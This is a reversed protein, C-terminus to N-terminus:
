RASWSGVVADTDLSEPSFREGWSFVVADDPCNIHFSEGHSSTGSFEIGNEARSRSTELSDRSLIQRSLLMVFANGWPDRPYRDGSAKSYCRSPLELFAMKRPNDGLLADVVDALDIDCKPIDNSACAVIVSGNVNASQSECPWAGYVGRFELAANALEMADSTALNRKAQRSAARMAPLTAAILVSLIMIAALIEILTFGM